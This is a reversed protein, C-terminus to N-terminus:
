EKKDFIDKLATGVIDVDNNFETKFEEWKDKGEYKYENLKKTLEINKQELTLIENEYKTRFTASTAKMAIKFDNILQKNALIKAEVNSKFQLWESNYEKEATILDENAQQVDEKADEVKQERNENCGIFILGTILVLGILIFRNAKM